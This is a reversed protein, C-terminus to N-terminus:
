ETIPQMLELEAHKLRSRELRRAVWEPTYDTSLLSLAREYAEGRTKGASSLLCYGSEVDFMAWRNNVIRVAGDTRVSGRALAFKRGPHVSHTLLYGTSQWWGNTKGHRTFTTKKM